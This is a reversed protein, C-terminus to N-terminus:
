SFAKSFMLSDLYPLLLKALTKNNLFHRGGSLAAAYSVTPALM